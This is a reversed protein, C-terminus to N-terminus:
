AGRGRGGPMKEFLRDLRQAIASSMADLRGHVGAIAEVMKHEAAVLADYRAYEVAVTQKFAALDRDIAKMDREMSEFQADIHAERRALIILVWKVVFGIAGGVTMLVFFVGSLIEQWTIAGLM